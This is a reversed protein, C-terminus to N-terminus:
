ILTPGTEWYSLFGPEWYSSLVKEGILLSGQKGNLLSGQKRYSSLGTDQNSPSVPPDLCQGTSVLLLLCFPKCELLGALEWAIGVFIHSHQSCFYGRGGQVLELLFLRSIVFPYNNIQAV